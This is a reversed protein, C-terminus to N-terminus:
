LSFVNYNSAGTSDTFACIRGKALRFDDIILEKDNLLSSINIIGIINGVELLTDCPAGEFYNILKTQNIKLGFQPFTSFFTLEVEAIEATCNIFKAVQKQVFPTLREPTFVVWLAVGLVIALFAIISSLSIFFIKFFRRM